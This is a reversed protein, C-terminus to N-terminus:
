EAMRLLSRIRLLLFGTRLGLMCGLVSPGTEESFLLKGDMDGLIDVDRCDRVVEQSRLTPARGSGERSGKVRWSVDLGLM